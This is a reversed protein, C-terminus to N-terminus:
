IYNNETHESLRLFNNVYKKGQGGELTEELINVDDGHYKAVRRRKLDGTKLSKNETIIKITKDENKYINSTTRPAKPTKTNIITPSPPKIKSNNPPPIVSTNPPKIVSNIPPKIASNNPPTIVSTNPPVSINSPKKDILLMKEIEHLFNNNGGSQKKNKQSKIVEKVAKFLPDENKYM